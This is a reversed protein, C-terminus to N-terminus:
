GFMGISIWYPITIVLSISVALFYILGYKSLQASTWGKDGTISEAILVFMNQYSLFFCNGAMVFLTTWILPHISFCHYIEALVPIIISMTPIFIAVDVFRWIFLVLAVSFVFIWPNATFPGILPILVGALWASVGTDTFVAGIGMAVGIFIVLDWSIGKSLEPTKIIGTASFAVLGALAVATNPIQHIPNTVFLIFVITLILASWKEEKSMPGLKTYEAAFEERSVTIPQEPRFIIAGGIIILLTILGFPLFSVQSWSKFTILGALDPVSNFMGMIIPGWLSGTLWGSGPIVAMAWATLLILASANSRKELKCVEICNLAIPMIIAIRVIISPTFVSLILGIVIWAITLGLYSPNFIKIVLYAIRKGVGTKVLVYGFFLAPILIWLADSTFGSFVKAPDIGFLLYFIMLSCGSISFPINLPKFIWLGLTILLAAFVNHGTSNLDPLWPKYLGIFIALLFFVICGAIPIVKINLKKNLM